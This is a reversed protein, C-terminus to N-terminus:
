LGAFGLHGSAEPASCKAQWKDPVTIGGEQTLDKIERLGFSNSSARYVVGLVGHRKPGERCSSCVSM